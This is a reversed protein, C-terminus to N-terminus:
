AATACGGPIQFLLDFFDCTVACNSNDVQLLFASHQCTCQLACSVDAHASCTCRESLRSSTTAVAGAHVVIPSAVIM